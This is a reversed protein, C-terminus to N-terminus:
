VQFMCMAKRKKLIFINGNCYESKIFNFVFVDIKLSLHDFKLIFYVNGCASDINSTRDVNLKQVVEYVIDTRCSFFTENRNSILILNRESSEYEILDISQGNEWFYRMFNM